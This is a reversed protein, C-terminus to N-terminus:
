LGFPWAGFPLVIVSAVPSGCKPQAGRGPAPCTQSAEEGPKRLAMAAAICGDAYGLDGAV